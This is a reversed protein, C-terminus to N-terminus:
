TAPPLEDIDPWRHFCRAVSHPAVANVFANASLLLLTSDTGSRHRFANEVQTATVLVKRIGDVDIAIDANVGIDNMIQVATRPGEGIVGESFNGGVVHDLMAFVHDGRHFFDVPNSAAVRDYLDGDRMERAGIGKDIRGVFMLEPMAAEIVDGTRM